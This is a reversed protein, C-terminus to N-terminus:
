GSIGGRGESRGVSASREALLDRIEALLDLETAAEEAEPKRPMLREVAKVVMFMAAGVIVFNVVATIFTGYKIVSHNITFTYSDFSPKGGVAGIIPMLVNQTFATVILGFAAGIIVAVALDIVNGRLLFKKFDQLM